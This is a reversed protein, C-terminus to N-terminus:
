KPKGAMSLYMREGFIFGFPMSLLQAGVEFNAPMYAIVGIGAFICVGAMVYRASGRLDVVWQSPTGGPNDLQALAKLREVSSNELKIQDDVSMGLWRRSIAGFGQKVLDVAAPALVSAIISELIM